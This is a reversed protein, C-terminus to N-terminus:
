NFLASANSNSRYIYQAQQEITIDEIQIHGIRNSKKIKRCKCNQLIRPLCVFLFIIFVLPIVVYYLMSMLENNDNPMKINNLKHSPSNNNNQTNWNNIYKYIDLPIYIIYLLINIHM